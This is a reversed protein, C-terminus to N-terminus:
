KFFAVRADFLSIVSLAIRLIHLREPIRVHRDPNLSHWMFKFFCILQDYNQMKLYNNLSAMLDGNLVKCM